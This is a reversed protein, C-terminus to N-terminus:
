NMTIIAIVLIKLKVILKCYKLTGKINIKEMMAIMEEKADAAIIITMDIENMQNKTM